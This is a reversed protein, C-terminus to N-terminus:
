VGTRTDSVCISDSYDHALGQLGNEFVDVVVKGKESLNKKDLYFYGDKLILACDEELCEALGNAIMVTVASVMGCVIKTSAHGKMRIYNDALEILM